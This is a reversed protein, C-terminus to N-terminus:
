VIGPLPEVRKLQLQLSNFECSQEFHVSALPDCNVTARKVRDVKTMQSDSLTNDLQKLYVLQEKNRSTLRWMFKFAPHRLWDM